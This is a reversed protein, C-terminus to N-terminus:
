SAKESVEDSDKDVDGNMHVNDSDDSRNKMAESYSEIALSYKNKDTGFMDIANESARAIAKLLKTYENAYTDQETKMDGETVSDDGEGSKEEEDEEPDKHIFLLTMLYRIEAFIEDMEDSETSSESASAEEVVVDSTTAFAATTGYVLGVEPPPEKLSDMYKQYKKLNDALTILDQAKVLASKVGEKLEDNSNILESIRDTDSRDGKVTIKDEAENYGFEVPPDKPINNKDFFGSLVGKLDNMITEMTVLESVLNEAQNKVCSESSSNKETEEVEKVCNDFTDKFSTGATNGQKTTNTNQASPSISDNVVVANNM